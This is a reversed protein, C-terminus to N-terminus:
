SLALVVSMQLSSLEFTLNNVQTLRDNPVLYRVLVQISGSSPVFEAIQAKSLTVTSSAGFATGSISKVWVYKGSNAKGTTQDLVYLMITAEPAVSGSYNFSLSRIKTNDIPNTAGVPTTGFTVQATAVEGIAPEDVALLSYGAGSNLTSATGIANTGEIVPKALETNDFPNVSAVTFIQPPTVAVSQAYASFNIAGWGTVTDWFPTCSSITGSPLSGNTGSTIDFWVDSRGGQAYITDNLRGQRKVGGFAAIQQETVGMSGEFVPSAFSTGDYGFTLVGGVFFQYAGANGAANLAVDPVLRFNVGTPVGSGVQWSPLVNFPVATSSWGGGSGSWGSEDLRNGTNDTDAVTGGVLTVEPEYGSYAYELETNTGSDGSAVMYSQGQANMLQHETHAADAEATSLIWGYSESIVDAINDEQEKTLVDVIGGGGDYITFQCLPSMGLSMQIDLDGEGQPTGTGSGGDVTVITINSGVGGTPTPLKFQSYYLPVNTLRYGDWNSIALHATQGQYGNAWMPAVGYLTRTQDPTLPDTNFRGKAAKSKTLSPQMKKLQPRGISTNEVGCITSIASAFTAPVHLPESFSYYNIRSLETSNLAHYNNITTDFAKEAQSVTADALIMMHSAGVLKVNFGNSKLYSVVSQVTSNPQGFLAGLQSPTAWKHYSASKPNNVSDVFAKFGSPNTSALNVAVHIIDTPNKHSVLM